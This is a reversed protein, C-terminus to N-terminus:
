IPSPMSSAANSQHLTDVPPRSSGKSKTAYVSHTTLLVAATVLTQHHCHRTPLQLLPGLSSHHLAPRRLLEGLGQQAERRLRSTHAPAQRQPPLPQLRYHRLWRISSCHLRNFPRQHHHHNYHHYWQSHVIGRQSRLFRCVALCIQIRQWMPTAQGPHYQLSLPKNNCRSSIQQIPGSRIAICQRSRFQCVVM